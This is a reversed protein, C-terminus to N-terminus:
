KLPAEQDIRTYRQSKTPFKTKDLAIGETPLLVLARAKSAVSLSQVRLLMSNKKTGTQDTPM